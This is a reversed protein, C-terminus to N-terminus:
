ERERATRWLLVFSLVVIVSLTGLSVAAGIEFSLPDFVLEIHHEGAELRVARFAYDAKYVEQPVGDVFAKWGQYYLESLVVFGDTASVAEITVKNPAYDLIEVRPQALDGGVSPTLPDPEKELIVYGSADFEDSSLWDLAEAAEQAVRYESVFFARPLVNKNEYIKVEGDYVLDLDPDTREVRALEPGPDALTIVYKVNLLDLLESSLSDAHRLSFIRRPGAIEDDILTMFDVYYDLLVSSYGQADQIGYVALSNSPFVKRSLPGRITRYITDDSQLFRVSDMEPYLMDPERSPNLKWGFYCLDAAMAAVFLLTLLTVRKSLRTSVLLLLACVLLLFAFRVFNVVNYSYWQELLGAATAEGGSGLLVGGLGTGLIVVGAMTALALGARLLPTREGHVVSEVLSTLGLAVLVSVAFAWMLKAETQRGIRFIPLMYLLRFLPTEVFICISLVALGGFFATHKDRRRVLAWVALFLPLIGAYLSTEGYTGPINKAFINRGWPRDVPNGFVDPVVLTALALPSRGPELREEYSVQVREAFGAVEFTPLLLVASLLVGTGVVVVFTLGHKASTRAGDDRLVIVLRFLSYLGLAVMIHVTGSLNGTLIIMAVAFAGGFAYIWGKQRLLNEFCLFVLPMWIVASLRPLWALNALVFGGLAFSVAGVLAALLGCDISKLYLYMFTGGLCVQLFAIYGLAKLPDVIYFLINPPYFIGLWPEAAMFPFGSLYYPNWLPLSGSDVIQRSVAVQPYFALLTDYEYNIPPQTEPDVYYNWPSYRALHDGVLVEGTFLVKAFFVACLLVLGLLPLLDGRNATHVLLCSRAKNCVMRFL